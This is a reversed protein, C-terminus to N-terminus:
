GCWGRGLERRTSACWAPDNRGWCCNGVRRPQNRSEQPSMLRPLEELVRRLTHKPLQVEGAAGRLPSLRSSAASCAEPLGDAGGTQWIECEHLVSNKQESPKVEARGLSKSSFFDNWCLFIKATAPCHRGAAGMLLMHLSSQEEVGCFLLIWSFSSFNCETTEDM